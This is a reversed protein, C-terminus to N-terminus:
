EGARKLLQLWYYSAVAFALMSPGLWYHEGMRGDEIIRLSIQLGLAWLLFAACGYLALGFSLSAVLAILFLSAQALGRWTQFCWMACAVLLGAYACAVATMTGPTANAIPTDAAAMSLSGLLGAFCVLGIAASICHSLKLLWTRMATM